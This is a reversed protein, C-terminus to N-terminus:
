VHHPEEVLICAANIEPHHQLYSYVFNTYEHLQADNYLTTVCDFDKKGEYVQTADQSIYSKTHDRQSMYEVMAKRVMATKLIKEIKNSM